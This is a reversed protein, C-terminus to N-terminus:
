LTGESWARLEIESWKSAKSVLERIATPDDQLLRQAGTPAAAAVAKARAAWWRMSAPRHTKRDKLASEWDQLQLLNGIHDDLVLPENLMALLRPALREAAKSPRLARDICFARWVRERVYRLRLLTHLPTRNLHHALRKELADLRAEVKSGLDEIARKADDAEYGAMAAAGEANDILGPLREVEGAIGGLGQHISEVAEITRKATQDFRAEFQVSERDLYISLLEEDMLPRHAAGDRTIRRGSGDFHPARTPRVEIRLFPTKTSVAEEIIRLSVPVPLTARAYDQVRRVHVALDSGGLGVPRGTTLGTEPDVIEAVGALITVQTRAPELAVWNAAAVLVTSDVAKSTQKFEFRGSEGESTLIKRAAASVGQYRLRELGSTSESPADSSGSKM